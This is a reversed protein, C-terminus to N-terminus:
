HVIIRWAGVTQSGLKNERTRQVALRKEIGIAAFHPHVHFDVLGLYTTLEFDGVHHVVALQFVLSGRNPLSFIFAGWDKRRRQTPVRATRIRMANGIM